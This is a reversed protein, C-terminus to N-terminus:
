DTAGLIEGAARVGSRLAGEMTARKISTHEGAFHLRGRPARLLELLNTVQGPTAMSFGSRVYPDAAWSKTVGGEVEQRITPHVQALGTLTVAMRDAQLMAGLEFAYPGRVHSELISRAEPSGAAARPHREIQGVPLDTCAAGEVGEDFWFARRTQLFTRTVGMYNLEAIARTQAPPLPPSIELDRLVSAPITCIVHDAEFAQDVGGRRTHVRVAHSAEEIAVVEVGYEVRRRLRTAMGRPLLDNGGRIVFAAAGTIAWPYDAMAISQMSAVEIAAGFWLWHGMLRVAGESAGRARMFDGLTINDLAALQPEKWAAPDAAERPLGDLIYRGQIGRPGLAAEEATLGYPWAVRQGPGVAFRRGDLHYLERLGAEGPEARPLGLAEIYRVANTDGMSFVMGGAEAYLDDAFDARLTRVRGGPRTRAELVRVDHGADNLEWAAALGALGAGLVLVRQPAQPRTVAAAAAGVPWGAALAAAGAAGTGLIRRRTLPM